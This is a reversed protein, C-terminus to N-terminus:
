DVTGPLAWGCVPLGHVAGAKGDEGAECAPFEPNGEEDEAEIEAGSRVCAVLPGGEVHPGPSDGWLGVGFRVAERLREAGDQDDEADVVGLVDLLEKDIWQRM